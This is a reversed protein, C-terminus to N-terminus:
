PIAKSILGLGGGGGGGGRGQTERLVALSRHNPTNLLANNRNCM